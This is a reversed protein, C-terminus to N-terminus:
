VEISADARDIFLGEIGHRSTPFNGGVIDALESPQGCSAPIATNGLAPIQVPPVRQYGPAGVGDMQGANGNSVFGYGLM